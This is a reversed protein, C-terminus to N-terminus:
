QALWANFRKTLEEGNDLWFAIDTPFAEKLNDGSPVQAAVEPSLKAAAINNPLGYPILAPLKAMNEPDSAFAIFEMAKEPHEAGKLIVWSDTAFTSQPWVLKLNRKEAKNLANIRGDYAVTMAVEGSALLQTMQAGSEWWIVNPKIEDLKKFARDVGEPTALVKYVDATPVGDALLAFELMMKPGKRMGRKGPYKAVDWFDAWNKPGDAIKDGDYAMMTSWIITGVGCDSVASDQWDEKNGLKSWDLPIYLGDACGLELEDAEVQVVDWSPQGAKVKSEIIGYGGNWTDELVKIGEKAGFPEFYVKTQAAQYPGGWSTVTFDRASAAGSALALMAGATIMSTLKRM